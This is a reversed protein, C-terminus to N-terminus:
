ILLDNIWQIKEEEPLQQNIKKFHETGYFGGKGGRYIENMPHPSELIAKSQSINKKYSKAYNGWLVWILDPKEESLKTILDLTFNKWHDLHSGAAKEQVTLATNLLLVGQGPLHEWNGASPHKVLEEFREEQGANTLMEKLIVRMSPTMFTEPLSFCLGQAVDPTPYPDQGLIVVKTNDFDCEEFARFRKEKTPYSEIGLERAEAIKNSLAVLDEKNDEIIPYLFDAWRESTRQQLQEKTM